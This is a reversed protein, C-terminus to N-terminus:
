GIELDDPFMPAGIAFKVSRQDRRSMGLASIVMPLSFRLRVSADLIVTNVKGDTNQDLLHPPQQHPSLSPLMLFPVSRTADVTSPAKQDVSPKDDPKSSGDANKPQAAEAEQKELELLDSETSCYLRCLPLPYLNTQNPKASTESQEIVVLGDVLFGCSVGHVDKIIASDLVIFPDNAAKRSNHQKHHQQDSSAEPEADDGDGRENQPEIEMVLVVNEVLTNWKAACYAKMARLFKRTDSLVALNIAVLPEGCLCNILMGLRCTVLLVLQPISITTSPGVTHTFALEMWEFPIEGNALSTIQQQAYISIFGCGRSSHLQSKLAQFCKNVSAFAQFHAKFEEGLTIWPFFSSSLSSSLSDSAIEEQLILYLSGIQHCLAEMREPIRIDTVEDEMVLDQALSSTTRGSTEATACDSVVLVEPAALAMSRRLLLLDSLLEASFSARHAAPLNKAKSESPLQSPPVSSESAKIPDNLSSNTTADTKCPQESQNTDCCASLQSKRTSAVEILANELQDRELKNAVTLDEIAKFQIALDKLRTLVPFAVGENICGSTARSNSFEWNVWKEAFAESVGRDVLWRKIDGEHSSHPDCSQTRRVIVSKPILPLLSSRIKSAIPLSVAIYWEPKSLLAHQNILQSVLLILCECHEATLVEVVFKDKSTVLRTLQARLSADDYHHVTLLRNSTQTWLLLMVEARNRENLDYVVICNPLHVRDSGRLPAIDGVLAAASSAQERNTERPLLSHTLPLPVRISIMARDELATQDEIYADMADAFLDPFHMKTILLRGMQKEFSKSDSAELEKGVSTVAYEGFVDDRDVLIITNSVQVLAESVAVSKRRLLRSRQIGLSYLVRQLDLKSQLKGQKWNGWLADVSTLLDSLMKQAREKVDAARQTSLASKSNSGWTAADKNNSKTARRQLDSIGMTGTYISRPRALGQQKTTSGSLKSLGDFVFACLRVKRRFRDVMSQSKAQPPSFGAGSSSDILQTENTSAADSLTAPISRPQGQQEETEGRTAASVASTGGTSSLLQVVRKYASRNGVQSGQGYDGQQMTRQESRQAEREVTLLFLFIQRHSKSAFGSVLQQVIEIVISRAIENQDVLLELRRSSQHRVDLLDLHREIAFELWRYNRAYIQSSTGALTSVATMSTAIGVFQIAIWAYKKTEKAIGERRESVLFKESRHRRKDKNLETFSAPTHQYHQFFSRIWPVSDVKFPVPAAPRSILLEHLRRELQLCRHVSEVQTSEVEHIEHHLKSYCKRIWVEHFFAELAETGLNVQFVALYMALAHQDQIQIPTASVAYLQFGSGRLRGQQRPIATPTSSGNAKSHSVASKDDGKASASAAAAVAAAAMETSLAAAGFKKRVHSVKGDDNGSPQKGSVEALAMKVAPYEAAQVTSPQQRRKKRRAELEALHSQYSHTTTQSFASQRKHGSLYELFPLLKPLTQQLQFNILLVPLNRRQAEHLKVELAEDECMVVMAAHSADRWLVEKDDSPSSFLSHGSFFHIFFRQLIGSQDVFVPLRDCLTDALCVTDFVNSQRLFRFRAGWLLRALNMDSDVFDEEDLIKHHNTSDKTSLAATTPGSKEEDLGSLMEKIRAICANLKVAPLSTVYSYAMMASQLLSEALLKAHMQSARMNELDHNWKTVFESEISAVKSWERLRQTIEDQETELEAITLAIEECKSRLVWSAHADRTMNRTQKESAEDADDEEHQLHREGRLQYEHEEASNTAVVQAERLQLVDETLSTTRTELTKKLRHTTQLTSLTEQHRTIRVELTKRNRQYLVVFNKLFSLYYTLQFCESMEVVMSETLKVHIDHCLTVARSVFDVRPNADDTSGSTVIPPQLKAEKVAVEAIEMMVQDLSEIRKFCFWQFRERSRVWELLKLTSFSHQLHDVSLTSDIFICLRLNRQVRGVFDNLIEGDTAMELKSQSQVFSLVAADRLAGSRFLLSPIQNLCLEKILDFLVLSDDLRLRKDDCEIWLAIRENQIVASHLIARLKEDLGGQDQTHSIRMVQLGHSDCAFRLLCEAVSRSDQASIVLHRQEDLAHLLHLTKNLGYSSGMLLKVELTSLDESRYSRVPPSSSSWSASSALQLLIRQITESTSERTVVGQGSSGSSINRTKSSSSSASANSTMIERLKVLQEVVSLQSYKSALQLTFYVVEISGLVQPDDRLSVSFYKESILRLASWIKTITDNVGSPLLQDSALGGLSKSLPRSSGRAYQRTSPSTMTSYNALFMNRIESMWSQHLKGLLLLSTNREKERLSGAFELTRGLLASVHHLNFVLYGAEAANDQASQAVSQIMNLEVALDITARLATEEMPLLRDGSDHASRNKAGSSALPRSATANFFHTQFKAKFISLLQKRDYNPVQFVTFYRMLRVLSAPLKTGMPSTEEVRMAAGIDKELPLFKQEKRSFAVQHDLLLRVFEEQEGVDGTANSGLDDLFIISYTTRPAFLESEEKYKSRAGQSDLAALSPCFWSAPMKLWNLIGHSQRQDISADVMVEAAEDDENLRRLLRLLSTKGAASGGTFLFSQSSRILQSCIRVLTRASPAIVVFQASSPDYVIQDSAVENSLETNGTISLGPRYQPPQLMDWVSAFHDGSFITGPLDCLYKLEAFNKAQSRLFQELKHKMQDNLHGSFGWAVSFCVLLSVQTHSLDELNARHELCMSTVLKLATQTMHNMSLYGLHLERPQSDQTEERNSTSGNGRISAREMEEAVFKVCLTSVLLEVTAFLTTVNKSAKSDVPFAVRQEWSDRWARVIEVHSILTSPVYASWCDAVLSPSLDRLDIVEFILRVRSSVDHPIKVSRGDLLHLWPSSESFLGLLPELWASNLAGGDVLVWTRLQASYADATPSSASSFIKNLLGINEHRRSTSAPLGYLEDLSFLSPNLVVLDSVQGRSNLPDSPNLEDEDPQLDAFELACLAHHLTKICTTKGSGPSGYVIIAQNNQLARWIEMSIGIQAVNRAYNSHEACISLAGALDEERSGGKFKDAVMRHSPTFQFCKLVLGQCRRILASKDHQNLLPLVISEIANKFISQEIAASFHDSSSTSSVGVSSSQRSPSSILQAPSTDSYDGVSVARFSARIRRAEKVVSRALRYCAMSSSLESEAAVFSAFFSGVHMSSAQQPTFGEVLLLSEVFYKISPLILAIPRFPTQISDLLGSSQLDDDGVLPIFIAAQGGGARRGATPTQHHRSRHLQHYSHVFQEHCASRLPAQLQLIHDMRLIGGLAVAANILNGIMALNRVMPGCCFSFSPRMLVQSILTLLSFQEQLHKRPTYPTILALSLTKMASFIAYVCRETFPTMTVLRNCGVFELGIPLEVHITEAHFLVGNLSVNDNQGMTSQAEGFQFGQVKNDLETKSSKTVSRNAEVAIGVKLQMKWFLLANEGQDQRLLNTIHRILHLQYSCLLVITEVRPDVKTLGSPPDKLLSILTEISQETQSQLEDFVKYANSHDRPQEQYRQYHVIAQDMHYRFRLNLALVISQPIMTQCMKKEMLAVAVPASNGDGLLSQVSRRLHSTVLATMEEELRCFWFKVRGIKLVALNFEAQMSLVASEIGRIVVPGNNSSQVSGVEWSSMEQVSGSSLGGTEEDGRKVANNGIMFADVQPFCISLSHKVQKCDDERISLQLFEDDSLTYLRPAIERLSNFYERLLQAGAECSSSSQDFDFGEFAAVIDDLSCQSPVVDDRVPRQVAGVESNRQIEPKSSSANVRINSINKCFARRIRDNWVQSANKFEAWQMSENHFKEGSVGLKTPSTPTRNTFFEDTDHLKAMECVFLWKSQFYQIRECVMLKNEIEGCFSLLVDLEPNQEHLYLKIGLLLDELEVLVDQVNECRINYNEEFIRVTLQDLRQRAQAMKMHVKSEVIVQDCLNLFIDMQPQQGGWHEKLLSLTLQNRSTNKWDFSPLSQLTEDMVKWREGSFSGGSVAQFVRCNRVMQEISQDFERALELDKALFSIEEPKESSDLRPRFLRSSAYLLRRRFQRIRNMVMGPHISSLPSKEWKDVLKNWSDFWKRLDFATVVHQLLLESPLKSLEAVGPEENGESLMSFPLDTQQYETIIRYEREYASFQREITKCEIELEVLNELKAVISETQARLEKKRRKAVLPHEGANAQASASMPVAEFESRILDLQTAIYEDTKTTLDYFSRRHESDRDQVRSLCVMLTEFTSEWELELKRLGGDDRDSEVSSSAQREQLLAQLKALNACKSDFRQRFSHFPLMEMVHTLWVNADEFSTPIKTVKEIKGDIEHLIDRLFAKYLGPLAQDMEDIRRSAHQLLTAIFQRQDLLLLGIQLLPPAGKAYSLFGGWSKQADEYQQANVSDLVAPDDEDSTVLCDDQFAASVLSREASRIAALCRLHETKVAELQRFYTELAHRTDRLKDAFMQLVTASPKGLSQFFDHRYQPAFPTLVSSFRSNM